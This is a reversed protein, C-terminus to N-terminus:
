LRYKGFIEFHRGTVAGAAVTGTGAVATGAVVTAVLHAM